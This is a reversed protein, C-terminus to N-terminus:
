CWVVLVFARWSCQVAEGLFCFECSVQVVLATTRLRDDDSIKMNDQDAKRFTMDIMSAVDDCFTCTGNNSVLDVTPLRFKRRIDGGGSVVVDPAKRKTGGETSGKGSASAVAAAAAAAVAAEAAKQAVEDALLEVAEEVQSAVTLAAKWVRSKVMDTNLLKLRNLYSDCKDFIWPADRGTCPYVTNIIKGVQLKCDDLKTPV